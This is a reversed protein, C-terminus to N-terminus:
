WDNVELLARFDDGNAAFLTFVTAEPPSAPLAPADADPQASPVVSLVPSPQVPEQWLSPDCLSIDQDFAVATRYLLGTDTVNRVNSRVVGGRLVLTKDEVVFKVRVASGPLLRSPTEILVGRRSVDILRVDPGAVLRAQLNPIASAPRRPSARRNEGGGAATASGTQDAM